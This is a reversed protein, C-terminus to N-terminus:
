LTRVATESHKFPALSLRCIGNVEHTEIGVQNLIIFLPRGFYFLELDLDFGYQRCARARFALDKNVLRSLETLAEKRSRPMALDRLQRDLNVLSCEAEHEELCQKVPEQAAIIDFRNLLNKGAAEELDATDWCKLLRCELPRHRYITCTTKPDQLFLCTWEGASGKIKVIETEAPETNASYPSFVPEGKRISILQSPRLHKQQLLPLDDIHLAPGGKRCCTGCRDCATKNNKGTM